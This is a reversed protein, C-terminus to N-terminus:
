LEDRKSRGINRQPLEINFDRVVSLLQESYTRLEALLKSEANTWLATESTNAM